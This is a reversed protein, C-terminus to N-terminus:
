SVSLTQQSDKFINLNINSVILQNNINALEGWYLLVRLKM